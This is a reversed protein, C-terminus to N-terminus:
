PDIGSHTPYKRTQWVRFGEDLVTVKTFGKSQLKLALQGSEAHPCACYCVLWADKPLASTFTDPEYFPTSVAGAIHEMFYDSPTRADLLGMRAGRELQVKIVDAGTMAPYPRFGEPEPGYPHIPVRGLPIKAPSPPRLTAPTTSQWSRLLAIVDEVGTEGLKKEFSPMATGPRGATVAHRLFGNSASALLEPGGLQVYPGGIGRAGHCRACEREFVAAGRTADGMTTRDDLKANAQSQWSRIFDVLASIDVERLPGSRFISWASMTTGRRGDAVAKRIYEDTAETLFAHSLTPAQDAAYGEGELGHCVVCMRTYLQQGRRQTSTLPQGCELDGSAVCLVVVALVAISPNLRM